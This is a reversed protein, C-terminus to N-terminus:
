LKIENGLYYDLVKLKFILDFKSAILNANSTNLTNVSSTYEYLSIMGIEYRKIAYNLAKQASKQASESAFYKQLAVKAQMYASYIEQKLKLKDNDAKLQQSVLGIKARQINTRAAYGNLIPINLSLGVNARINDGYQNFLPTTRTQYSYRPTTLPYSTGGVNINGITTEGEYTQGSINKVNSSFNTGLNAFISLQPYQNAKAIELTKQASLLRYQNVKTQNQNEIAIDIIEEPTKSLYSNAHDEVQVYPTKIDFRKDYDLNMLARLQLLAIAEDSQANLVNASDGSLQAAMQLLNLEPVKGADVFKKTQAYQSQTLKLQEQNVKIQERALLVRLFGTAVNLSIDDKLQKFAYNSALQDLESQEIKYKKQFWGFLLAQSSVGVTNYLFGKTVFQNSTPDISRGYSEGLSADANVIPLRSDKSQQLMLKALRNNLEAESIQTNNEKAYQICNEIDWVLPLNKSDSKNKELALEAEIEKQRKLYEAEKEEKYEASQKKKKKKVQEEVPTPLEYVPTKDPQLDIESNNIEENIQKSTTDVNQVTGPKGYVQPPVVKKVPGMELPKRKGTQANTKQTFSAFSMLVIFSIYKYM